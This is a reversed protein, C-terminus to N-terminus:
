KGLLYLDGQVTFGAQLSLFSPSVKHIDWCLVDSVPYIFILTSKRAKHAWLLILFIGLPHPYSPFTQVWLFLHICVWLSFDLLLPLFGPGGPTPPNIQLVLLHPQPIDQPSSCGTPNTRLTPPRPSAVQTWLLIVQGDEARGPNPTPLGRQSNTMLPKQWCSLPILFYKLWKTLFDGLHHILNSICNDPLISWKFFLYLLLMLFIVPLM